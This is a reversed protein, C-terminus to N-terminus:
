FLVDRISTPSKYTTQFKLFPIFLYINYVREKQCLLIPFYRMCKWTNRANICVQSSRMLIDLLIWECLCEM